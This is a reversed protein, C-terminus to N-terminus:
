RCHVQQLESCHVQQMQNRKELANHPDIDIRM